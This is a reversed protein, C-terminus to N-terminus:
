GTGCSQLLVEPFCLYRNLTNKTLPFFLFSNVDFTCPVSSSVSMIAFAFSVTALSSFEREFEKKYGMRELQLEDDAADIGEVDNKIEKKEM